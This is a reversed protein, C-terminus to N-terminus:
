HTTKEINKAHKRQDFCLPILFASVVLRFWCNLLVQSFFFKIKKCEHLKCMCVVSMVAVCTLEKQFEFQPIDISKDESSAAERVTPNPKYYM